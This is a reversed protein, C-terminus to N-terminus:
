MIYPTHTHLIHLRSHKKLVEMEMKKRECFPHDTYPMYMYMCAILAALEYIKKLSQVM